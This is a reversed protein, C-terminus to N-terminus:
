NRPGCMMQVFQKGQKLSRNKMIFGVNNYGNVKFREFLWYNGNSTDIYKDFLINDSKIYKKFRNFPTIPLQKSYDISNETIEKARITQNFISYSFKRGYGDYVTLSKKEDLYFTLLLSKEPVSAKFEGVVGCDYKVEKANIIGLLLVISLMIKM